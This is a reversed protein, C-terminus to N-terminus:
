HHCQATPPMYHSIHLWGAAGGAAAARGTDQSILGEGGGSGKVAESLNILMILAFAAEDGGEQWPLIGRESARESATPQRTPWTADSLM